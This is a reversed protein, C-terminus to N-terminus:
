HIHFYCDVSRWDYVKSELLFKWSSEPFANSIFPFNATPYSQFLRSFQIANTHMWEVDVWFWEWDVLKGGRIQDKKNFHGGGWDLVPEEENWISLIREM